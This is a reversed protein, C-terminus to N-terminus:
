SLEELRINCSIDLALHIIGHFPYEVLHFVAQVDVLWLGSDRVEAYLTLFSQVIHSKMIEDVRIGSLFDRSFFVGDLLRGRSSLLDQSVSQLMSGVLKLLVGAVDLEQFPDLCFDDFFGVTRSSSSLCFLGM